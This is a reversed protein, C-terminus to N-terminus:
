HSFNVFTQLPTYDWELFEQDVQFQHILMRIDQYGSFFDQYSREWRHTFNKYVYLIYRNRIVITFAKDKSIYTKTQWLSFNERDYSFVSSTFRTEELCYSSDLFIFTATNYFIGLFYRIYRLFKFEIFCKGKENTLKKM